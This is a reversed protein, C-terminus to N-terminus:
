LSTRAKRRKAVRDAGRLYRMGEVALVNEDAEMGALHAALRDRTAKAEHPTLHAILTYAYMVKEIAIQM